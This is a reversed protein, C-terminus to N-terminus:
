RTKGAHTLGEGSAVIKSPDIGDFICFPNNEEYVINMKDVSFSQMTPRPVVVYNGCNLRYNKVQRTINL